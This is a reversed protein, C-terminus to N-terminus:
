IFPATSSTRKTIGSVGIPGDDTYRCNQFLYFNDPGIEAPDMDPIWKGAFFYQAAHGEDQLEPLTPPKLAEVSAVAIEDDPLDPLAPPQLAAPAVAIRDGKKM